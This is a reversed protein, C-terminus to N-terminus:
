KGIENKFSILKKLWLSLGALFLLFFALPIITKIPYVPIQIINQTVERRLWSVRAYNIGQWMIIASPFLLMIPYTILDCLLKKKKSLGGYIVDVRVHAGLILAYASYMLFHFSYIQECIPYTWLHPQNFVRRTVVEFVIFLTLPIVAWETIKGVWEVLKILRDSIDNAINWFNM